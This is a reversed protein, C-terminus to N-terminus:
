FGAVMSVGLSLLIFVLECAFLAAFVYAVYTWVPTIRVGSQSRIEQGEALAQASQATQGLDNMWYIGAAEDNVILRSGGFSRLWAEVNEPTNVALSGPMVVANAKVDGLVKENVNLITLPVKPANKAFASKVAEGFKGNHDLIVVSFGSQKEELVESQSAGDKRLALLHYVLVVAFVVLAM